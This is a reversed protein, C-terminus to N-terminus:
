EVTVTTPVIHAVRRPPMRNSAALLDCDQSVDTFAYGSEIVPLEYRALSAEDSIDLKRAHSVADDDAARESM